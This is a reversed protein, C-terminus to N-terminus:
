HGRSDTALQGAGGNHQRAVNRHSVIMFPREDFSRVRAYRVAIAARRPVRNAVVVAFPVWINSLTWAVDLYGVYATHM